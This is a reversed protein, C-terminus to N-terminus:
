LMNIFAGRVKRVLLVQVQLKELYKIMKNNGIEATTSFWPFILYLYHLYINNKNIKIIM